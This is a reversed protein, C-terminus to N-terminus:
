IDASLLHSLFKSFTEKSTRESTGAQPSCTCDVDVKSVFACGLFLCGHERIRDGHFLKVKTGDSSIFSSTEDCQGEPFLDPLGPQSQSNVDDTAQRSLNQLDM